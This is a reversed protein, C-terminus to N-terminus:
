IVKKLLIVFDRLFCCFFGDQEPKETPAFDKMASSRDFSFTATVSMSNLTEKKASEAEQRISLGICSSVAIIFVIVGILINRSKARSICRLANKIIYM